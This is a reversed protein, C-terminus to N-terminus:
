ASLAPGIPPSISGLSQPTLLLKEVKDSFHGESDIFGRWLDPANKVPVLHDQWTMGVKTRVLSSHLALATVPTRFNGGGYLFDNLIPSHFEYSMAKRLQHKKGTRLELVISTYGESVEGTLAFLTVENSKKGGNCAEKDVNIEGATPSTFIVNSSYNQNNMPILAVYRRIFPYGYNGGKQLNKSFRQAATTGKAILMGGSVNKDLRHVPKLSPDLSKLETFLGLQRKSAPVRIDDNQVAVGPAKNLVIYKSTEAVVQFLGHHGAKLKSSLMRPFILHGHYVVHFYLVLLFLVSRIEGM